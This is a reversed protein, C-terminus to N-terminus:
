AFVFPGFFSQCQATLYRYYPRGPRGSTKDAGERTACSLIAFGPMSSSEDELRDRRHAPSAICFITVFAPESGRPEKPRSRTSHSDASTTAESIKLGTLNEPLPDRGENEDEARTSGSPMGFSDSLSALRGGRVSGLQSGRESPSERVPGRV